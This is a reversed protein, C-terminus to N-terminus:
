LEPYCQLVPFIKAVKCSLDTARINHDGIRSHCIDHIVRFSKRKNQRISCEIFLLNDPPLKDREVKTHNKVLHKKWAMFEMMDWKLNTTCTMATDSDIAFYGDLRAYHRNM